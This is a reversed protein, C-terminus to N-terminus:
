RLRLSSTTSEPKVAAEVLSNKSTHRPPSIVMGAANTNRPATPMAPENFEVNERPNLVSGTTNSYMGNPRSTPNKHNKMSKRAAIVLEREMNCGAM